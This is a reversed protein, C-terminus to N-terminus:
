EKRTQLTFEQSDYENGYEDAVAVHITVSGNKLKEDAELNATYKIGEGPAIEEVLISSSIYIYKSGTTETVVPLVNYATQDGENTIEFIVKSLEGADIVQDRGDDIFRINSIQLDALPSTAKARAVNSTTREVKYVKEEEKPATAASAIAAGAVTGIITGIASGRFGGRGGRNGSGILGGMASGLNGGIAAGAVVAGGNGAGMRGTACGSLLVCGALCVIIFRNM